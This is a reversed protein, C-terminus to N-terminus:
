NGLEALYAAPTLIAIRARRAVEDTFHRSNGTVLCDARSALAAALIPADTTNIFASVRKVHADSPDATLEPPSSALFKHLMSTVRPAKNNVTRVLEELVQRSIVITITGDVHRRLLEAPAGRSSYLGSFVVNTDFFPRPKRRAM